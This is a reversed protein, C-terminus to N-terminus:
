SVVNLEENGFEEAAMNYAEQAETTDVVWGGNEAEKLIRKVSEEVIEHIDSETLRIQKKM